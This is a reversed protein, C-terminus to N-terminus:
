DADRRSSTAVSQKGDRGRKETLVTLHTRRSLLTDYRRGRGDVEDMGPEGFDAKLRQKREGDKKDGRCKKPTFLRRM